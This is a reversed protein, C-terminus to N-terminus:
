ECHFLMDFCVIIEEWPDHNVSGYALLNIMFSTFWSRTGRCGALESFVCPGMENKFYNM